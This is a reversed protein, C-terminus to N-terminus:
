TSQSRLNSVPKLNQELEKKRKDKPMFIPFKNLLDLKIGDLDKFPSLVIRSIPNRDVFDLLGICYARGIDEFM